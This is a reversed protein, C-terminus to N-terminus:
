RHASICYRSSWIASPSLRLAATALAQGGRSRHPLNGLRGVSNGAPKSVQRVSYSTDDRGLFLSHMSFRFYGIQVRFQELAMGVVQDEGGPVPGVRSM